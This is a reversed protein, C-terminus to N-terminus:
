SDDCESRVIRFRGFEQIEARRLHPAFCHPVRAVCHAFGAFVYADGAPRGELGNRVSFAFDRTWM